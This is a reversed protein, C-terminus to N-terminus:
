EIPTSFAFINMGKQWIDYTKSINTFFHRINTLGEEGNYNSIVIKPLYKRLTNEAGALVNMEFGVTDIKIFDIKSKNNGMFADLTTCSIDESGVIIGAHKQSLTTGAYYNKESYLLMDGEKDSLALAEVIISGHLNNNLINSELKERSSSSPEFSIVKSAGMGVSFLSFFGEGAGIDLVVDGKDIRVSGDQYSAYKFGIPVIRRILNTESQLKIYTDRIFIDYLIINISYLDKNTAGEPKSLVMESYRGDTKIADRIIRNLFLQYERGLKSNITNRGGIFFVRKYYKKQTKTFESDKNLRYINKAIDYNNRVEGSCLRSILVNHKM